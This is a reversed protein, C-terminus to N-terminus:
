RSQRSHPSELLIVGMDETPNVLYLCLYQSNEVEQVINVRDEAELIDQLQGGSRFLVKPLQLIPINSLVLQFLGQMFKAFLVLKILPVSGEVAGLDVYLQEIHKSSFVLAPCDLKVELKRNSEVKLVSGLLDLLDILGDDIM